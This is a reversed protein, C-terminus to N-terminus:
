AQPVLYLKNDVPTFALIVTTIGTAGVEVQRRTLTGVTVLATQKTDSEKWVLGVLYKTTGVKADDTGNPLLKNVAKTTDSFKIGTTFEIPDVTIDTTSSVTISDDDGYFDVTETDTSATENIASTLTIQEIRNADVILKGTGSIDDWDRNAATELNAATIFGTAGDKVIYATVASAQLNTGAHPM